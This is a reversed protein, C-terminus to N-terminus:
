KQGHPSKEAVHTRNLLRASSPPQDLPMFSVEPVGYLPEGLEHYAHGRANKIIVRSVKETDPYLTFPSLDSFLLLQGDPRQKLSRVVHRNSRLINAAEPHREPDPYLGGAMVAHLVCIFYNEDPSFAANCERCVSVQPLYGVEDENGRDYDAGRNRMKRTLFSKTPVHDRSGTVSAMGRGCHICLAKLREDSFDELERVFKSAGKLQSRDAWKASM